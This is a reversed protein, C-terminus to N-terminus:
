SEKYEGLTVKVEKTEGSRWIKLTIEDGPKHQVIM